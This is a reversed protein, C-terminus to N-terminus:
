DNDLITLKATVQQGLIANGGTVSTLTLFLTENAENLSDNAIPITITKKTEGPLFVVVLNSQATYDDGEEATGDFTDLRVSSSGGSGGTRTLTITAQAASESVSFTPAAFQVTPPAIAMATLVEGGAVTGILTATGTPQNPTTPGLNIMFLKSVSEGQLQMVALAAGNAGMGAGSIDMGGLNTPDVGLSGVTFVQGLNPSPTGNIGGITVLVNNGADIGYLTTVTAPDNDNRDYAVAGIDPNDGANVDGADFALSTDPQTGATGPDNDVLAFTLPNYRFNTDGTNVLRLRDVTPNFDFGVQGITSFLAPDIQTGLQSTQGTDPDIRLMRNVSTLAFLEGTAPRFDISRVSEGAILNRIPVAALLKGPNNAAFSILRNSQTVGYVIEDRPLATLGDIKMSGTGINGVVTTQGTSTNVTYLRTPGNNNTTLAAFATGNAAIDFGARPGVNFGLGGRTFLQGGNPSPTGDVGGVTVLTNLTTDIGFVTTLTTGQFNRDYAIEAINPDAGFNADGAAFDLDTDPQTGNGANGDGDVIAGTAPNIRLNQDSNTTVRLRDVNPNFDVGVRMGLQPLAAPAAGVLTARGTASNLTYLLNRSSVGYLVGNAPRADIGVMNEGSALGKIQVNSQIVTPSASDFTLLRDTSTLAVLPALLSRDELAEFQPRYHYGQCKRNGRNKGTGFWHSLINRFM